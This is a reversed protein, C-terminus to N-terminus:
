SCASLMQQSALDLYRDTSAVNLDAGGYFAYTTVFSGLRLTYFVLVPADPMSTKVLYVSNPISILNSDGLYRVKIGKSQPASYQSRSVRVIQNFYSKEERTSRFWAITEIFEGIAGPHEKVLASSVTSNYKPMKPDGLSESISVAPVANVAVGVAAPETLMPEIVRKGRTTAITPRPSGPFASSSLVYNTANKSQCVGLSPFLSKTSSAGSPPPAVFTMAGTLLLGVVPVLTKQRTFTM